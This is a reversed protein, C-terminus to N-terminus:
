EDADAKRVDKVKYKCPIKMGYTENNRSKFEIKATEMLPNWRTLTIFPSVQNPMVPNYEVDWDKKTIFTGNKDYFSIVVTVWNLPADSINKVEGEAKVMSRSHYWHWSLLELDQANVKTIIFLDLVIALLFLRKM